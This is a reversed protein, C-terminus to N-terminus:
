HAKNDLLKSQDPHSGMWVVLGTEVDYVAGEVKLKGSKISDVIVPSTRLVDEIAQWVNAEIADKMFGDGKASPNNKRATAVAVSINKALPVINGRLDASQTVAAVAGCKTHGLVVLLPTGLHAVAYEMSGTQDVNAVNGAVRVAFIDGVGRDFLIELPVRSDSCSLITAFPKQGETATLKRRDMGQNPHKVNSSIYRANGDKLMTKAEDASIGSSGGAGWCLGSCFVLMAILISLMRLMTEELIFRISKFM